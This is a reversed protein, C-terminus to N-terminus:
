IVITWFGDIKYFSDIKRGMFDVVDSASLSSFMVVRAEYEDNRYIIKINEILTTKIIDQFLKSGTM